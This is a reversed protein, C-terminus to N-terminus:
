NMGVKVIISSVLSGIKRTPMSDIQALLRTAEGQLAKFKALQKECQKITENLDTKAEQRVRADWEADDAFAIPQAHAVKTKTAKLVADHAKRYISRENDTRLNM